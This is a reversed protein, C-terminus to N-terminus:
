FKHLALLIIALISLILGATNLSNLKEKFFVVSVMTSAAVIGINNVPLIVASHAPFASLTKVLFYMSFYNPIGLAIGWYMNKAQVKIDGRMFQYLMLASGACFAVTFATTVTYSGFFPDNNQANFQKTILNFTTDIVGSGAFVILPLLWVLHGHAHLHEEKKSILYVSLLSLLIGTIQLWSLVESFFLVTVLVPIVVSLKASVMSVSVGLKQATEGIAFFISIFFVGIIITHFFWSFEWFPQLIVANKGALLNGVAACTLYNFIIAQFTNVGAKEFLKFFSVTITSAIISLLLFIM